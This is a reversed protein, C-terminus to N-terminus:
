AWCVLWEAVSGGKGVTARCIMCTVVHCPCLWGWHLLYTNNNSGPNLLLIYKLCIYDYCPPGVQTSCSFTSSVSTSTVHCVSRPQAPSHVQSPHVRLMASRGPNLLLIYKLCIYDNLDLRLERVRRVLETLRDRLSAVGAVSLSEVSVLDGTM